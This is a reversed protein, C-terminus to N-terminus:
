RETAMDPDGALRKDQINIYGQFFEVVIISDIIYSICWEWEVQLKNTLNYLSSEIEISQRMENIAPAMAPTLSITVM